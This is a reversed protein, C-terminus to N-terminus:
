ILQTVQDRGSYQGVSLHPRFRRNPNKFDDDFEILSNVITSHMTEVADNPQPDLWVTHNGRRHRFSEFQMLSIEFPSTLVTPRLRLNM